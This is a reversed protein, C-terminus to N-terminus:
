EEEISLKTEIINGNKEKLLKDMVSETYELQESCLKALMVGKTYKELLQELNVEDNELENVINELNQLATEFSVKKSRAM